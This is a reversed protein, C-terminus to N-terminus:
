KRENPHTGAKLPEFQIGKDGDVPQRHDVTNDAVESPIRDFADCSLRESMETGDPQTVGQFHRCFLCQSNPPIQIM